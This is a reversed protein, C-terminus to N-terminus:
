WYFYRWMSRGSKYKGQVGLNYKTGEPGDVYKYYLHPLYVNLHFSENTPNGDTGNVLDFIARGDSVHFKSRSANGPVPYNLCSTLYSPSLINSGNKYMYRDGPADTWRPPYALDPHVDITWPSALPGFLVFFLLVLATFM